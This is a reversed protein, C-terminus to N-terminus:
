LSNPNGGMGLCNAGQLSVAEFSLKNHRCHTCHLNQPKLFKQLQTNMSKNYEISRKRSLSIFVRSMHLFSAIPSHQEIIIVKQKIIIEDIQHLQHFM